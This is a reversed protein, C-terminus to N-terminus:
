NSNKNENENLKFNNEQSSSISISLSTESSSDIPSPNSLLKKLDYKNKNLYEEKLKPQFNKLTSKRRIPIESLSFGNPQAQMENDILDDTKFIGL